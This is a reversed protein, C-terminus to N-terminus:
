HMLVSPLYGFFRLRFFVLVLVKILPGTTFIRRGARPAAMAPLDPM